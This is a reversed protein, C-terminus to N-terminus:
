PIGVYQILADPQAQDRVFNVVPQPPEAPDHWIKIPGWWTKQFEPHFNWNAPLVFPPQASQAIALSFTLYDAPLMLRYQKRSDPTAYPKISKDLASWQEFLSAGKRSFFLVGPNFEVMEPTLAVPPAPQFPSAAPLVSAFRRAWPCESICCAIGHRAAMEFGFDLRDLVVTDADLFLTEQFPSANFLEMKDIVQVGRALYHVHVPIDPHVARASNISRQLLQQAGGGGHRILFMIGRVLTNTGAATEATGERFAWTGGRETALPAIGCTDAPEVLAKENVWPWDLFKKLPAPFQTNVQLSKWQATIDKYGYYQEKFRLQEETVYAYHQFVLKEREMEVPSFPRIRVADVMQRPDSPSPVGLSPPEHSIWRM